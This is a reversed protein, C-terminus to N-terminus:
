GIQTSRLLNRAARDLAPCRALMEIAATKWKVQLYRSLSSTVVAGTVFNEANAFRQKYPEDGIGLDVVRAGERVAELVVLDLLVIGPSFRAYKMEFTPMYWLWNREFLLVLGWAIAVGGVCLEFIRIHHQPSIQEAVSVQFDRRASLEFPSVRGSTRFRAIHACFFEELGAALEPMQQLCRLEVAGFRALRAKLKRRGLIRATLRPISEKSLDIRPAIGRRLWAVKFDQIPQATLAGISKSRVPLNNLQLEHLGRNKLECITQSIIEARREPVSIFDNYDGLGDGLFRVVGPFNLLRALAAIGVLEDGDCVLVILPELQSAFASSACKAWTHTFFVAPEEMRLVLADWKRVVEGDPVEALIKAKM